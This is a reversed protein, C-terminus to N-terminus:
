QTTLLHRRDLRLREGAQARAALVSNLRNPVSCVPDLADGAPTANCPQSWGACAALLTALCRCIIRDDLVRRLQKTSRKMPKRPREKEGYLEPARMLRTAGRSNTVRVM